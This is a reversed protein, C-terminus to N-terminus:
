PKKGGAPKMATSKRIPVIAGASSPANQQFRALM